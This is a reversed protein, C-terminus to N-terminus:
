VAYIAVNCSVRAFRSEWHKGLLAECELSAKKKM